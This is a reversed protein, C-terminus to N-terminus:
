LIVHLTNKTWQAAHPFYLNIDTNQMVYCHALGEQSSIDAAPGGPPWSHGNRGAMKCTMHCRYGSQNAWQGLKVPWFQMLFLSFACISTFKTMKPPNVLQNKPRMINQFLKCTPQQKTTNTVYHYIARPIGITPLHGWKGPVQHSSKNQLCLGTGVVHPRPFGISLETFHM